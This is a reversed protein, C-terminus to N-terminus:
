VIGGICLQHLHARAKPTEKKKKVQSINRKAAICNKQKTLDSNDAKPM